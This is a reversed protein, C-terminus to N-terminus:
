QKPPSAPLLGVQALCATSYCKYRQTHGKQKIVVSEFEEKGHHAHDYFTYTYTQPCGTTAKDRTFDDGGILATITATSPKAQEYHTIAIKVGHHGLFGHGDRLNMEWGDDLNLVISKYHIGSIIVDTLKIRNPNNQVPVTITTYPPAGSPSGDVVEVHLGGSGSTSLQPGAITAGDRGKVPAEDAVFGCDAPPRLSDASQSYASAASFICTGLIISASLRM